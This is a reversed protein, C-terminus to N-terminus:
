DVDPRRHPPPPFFPGVTKRQERALLQMKAFENGGPDTIDVMLGEMYHIDTPQRAGRGGNRRVWTNSKGTRGIIRYEAQFPNGAAGSQEGGQPM